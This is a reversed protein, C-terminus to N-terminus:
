FNNELITLTLYVSLFDQTKSLGGIADAVKVVPQHLGFADWQCHSSVMENGIWNQSSNGVLM